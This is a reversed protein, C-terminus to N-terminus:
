IIGKKVLTNLYEVDTPEDEPDVSYDTADTHAGGRPEIEVVDKPPDPLDGTSIGKLKALEKRRTESEYKLRNFEGELAEPWEPNQFDVGLGQLHGVVYPTFIQSYTFIALDIWRQMQDPLLTRWPHADGVTSFLRWWEDYIAHALEGADNVSHDPLVRSMNELENALEAVKAALHKIDAEKAAITKAQEDIHDELSAVESSQQGLTREIEVWAEIDKTSLQDGYHFLQALHEVAESSNVAYVAKEDRRAM